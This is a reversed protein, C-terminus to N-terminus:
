AVRIEAVVDTSDPQFGISRYLRSAGTPSDSDVAISAHTFGVRAFADLSHAILASAIGRGRWEPLTGLNDIWGDRRGLLEEDAAYHKNLCYGVIAGTATDIAVFSVDLRAGYGELGSRWNEASIPTSGWHDMFANNKVLRLEEDRGDPEAPWAVIDIGQLQVAPPRAELPMLLADFWRVQTFGMRSVLRHADSIRSDTYVRVFKALDNDITRLREVAVPVAWEMLARGVGEGRFKPDVTGFIFAREQVAGSPTHDCLVWGALSDDVIALRCDRDLELNPAELEERFEDLDLVRQIGDHAESRNILSCLRDCDQLSASVLEIM